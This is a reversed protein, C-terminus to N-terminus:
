AESNDNLISRGLAVVSNIGNNGLSGFEYNIYWGSNILELDIVPVDKNERCFKVFDRLAEGDNSYMFPGRYEDSVLDHIFYIIKEM